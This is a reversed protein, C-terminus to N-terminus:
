RRVPWIRLYPLPDIADTPGTRMIAFRVAATGVRGLLAGPELVAGVALEPALARLNAYSYLWGDEGRVLVGAGGPRATVALLEGRVCLVVASGAPAVLGVAHGPAPGSVAEVRRLAPVPQVYRQPDRPPGRSTYRYGDRAAVALVATVYSTSHNYGFLGAAADWGGGPLRGSHLLHNAAALVAPGPDFPSAGAVVNFLVWSSPLFQMLGLAPGGPVPPGVADTAFGSEIDAVAVLLAPPLAFRRAAAIFFGRLAPPATRVQEADSGGARVPAAAGGSPLAGPPLAGSAVALVLLVPLGLLGALTGAIAGTVLRRM